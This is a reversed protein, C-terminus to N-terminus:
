HDRLHVDPSDAPRNNQVSAFDVGTIAGMVERLSAHFSGSDRRESSASSLLHATTNAWPNQLLVKTNDIDMRTMLDEITMEKTVDIPNGKADKFDVHDVNYAHGTVMFFNDSNGRMTGLNAVLTVFSPLKLANFTEDKSLETIIKTVRVTSKGKLETM